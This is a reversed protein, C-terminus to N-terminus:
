RGVFFKVLALGITISVASGIISPMFGSIGLAFTVSTVLVAIAEGFSSIFNLFYDFFSDLYGSFAAMWSFM